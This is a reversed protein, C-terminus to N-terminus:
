CKLSMVARPKCPALPFLIGVSNIEVYLTHLTFSLISVSIVVASKPPPLSRLVQAASGPGFFRLARAPFVPSFFASFGRRLTPGSFASLGRRLTPGSFARGRRLPPPTATLVATGPSSGPFKHFRSAIPCIMHYEPPPAVLIGTPPEGM